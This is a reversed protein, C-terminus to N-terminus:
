KSSSKETGNIKRNKLKEVRWSPQFLSWFLTQIRHLSLNIKSLCERDWADDLFHHNHLFLLLMIGSKAQLLGRGGHCHHAFSFLM